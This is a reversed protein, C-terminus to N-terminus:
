ALSGAYSDDDADADVDVKRADGVDAYFADDAYGADADVYDDHADEDLNPLSSSSSHSSPIRVNRWQSM